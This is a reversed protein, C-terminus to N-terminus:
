KKAKNIHLKFGELTTSLTTLVKKMETEYYAIILICDSFGISHIRRGNIKIGRSKGKMRTISEEIFLNFLIFSLPVVTGWDDEYKESSDKM